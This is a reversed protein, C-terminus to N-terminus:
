GAGGLLRVAGNEGREGTLDGAMDGGVDILVRWATKDRGEDGDVEGVGGMRAGGLGGDM